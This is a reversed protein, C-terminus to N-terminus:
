TNKFTQAFATIKNNFESGRISFILKELIKTKIKAKFKKYEVYERNEIDENEQEESNQSHPDEEYSMKLQFLVCFKNSTPIWYFNTEFQKTYLNHYVLHIWAM